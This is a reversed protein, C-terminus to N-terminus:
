RTEKRRKVRKVYVATAVAAIAIVSALAIWPALLELKNVPIYIGGVPPAAVTVSGDITTHPILQPDPKSDVLMTDALHLITTGEQKAKFTMTALAGSGSAGPGVGLLVCSVWAFGHTANYNDTFNIITFYTSGARKLFAGEVISTGNLKSSLYCLKYEWGALDVVSSITINISFTEGILVTTVSPDVYLTTTAAVGRPSSLILMLTFLAM